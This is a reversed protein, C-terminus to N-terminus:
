PMPLTQQLDIAIAVLTEDTDVEYVKRIDHAVKARKLHVAKHITLERLKNTTPLRQLRQKIPMTMVTIALTQRLPPAVGINYSRFVESYIYFSAKKEPFGKMLLFELYDKYFGRQSLGHPLYVREHSKARSYHSTCTPLGKIHEHVLKMVDDPTM